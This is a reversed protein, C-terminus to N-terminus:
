RGVARLLANDRTKRIVRAQPEASAEPRKARARLADVDLRVAADYNRAVPASPSM